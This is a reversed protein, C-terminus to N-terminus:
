SAWPQFSHNKRKRVFWRQLNRRVLVNRSVLVQEGIVNWEGVRGWISSHFRQVDAQDAVAEHASRM